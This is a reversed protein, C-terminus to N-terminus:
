RGALYARVQTGLLGVLDGLVINVDLLHLGWTDNPAPQLQRADGIGRLALVHAGNSRVCRATHREAPVLWPTDATPPLGRYTQLLLVGLLGPLPESRTLSRVPVRRNRALDAPNTCAVEYQRGSPLALGPSSSADLPTRGFRADDPPTVGYTSWALVCGTQHRTRCLPISRFDGGRDSGRRVLVDAGPLIASVLDRRLAPRPDIQERILKRLLRSGQSHGILVFGRGDRRDLYARWADLVDRYALRFFSARQAPTFADEAALAVLTRQRYLPAFVRCQRSFRSAQQRTVAAVSSERRAQANPTVQQSSTPYVYFCDVRSNKVRSPTFVRSSGDPRQVTTTLSGRCDDSARGPLCLWRVDTAAGASPVTLLGGALALVLAVLLRPLM